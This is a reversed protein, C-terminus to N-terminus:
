KVDAVRSCLLAFIFILNHTCSWVHSMKIKRSTDIFNIILNFISIENSRSILIEFILRCIKLEIENATCVCMRFAREPHPANPSVSNASDSDNWGRKADLSRRLYISLSLALLTEGLAGIVDQWARQCCQARAANRRREADWDTDLRRTSRTSASGIGYHPDTAHARTQIAPAYRSRSALCLLLAVYSSRTASATPTTAASSGARFPSAPSFRLSLSNSCYFGRGGRIRVGRPPGVRDALTKTALFRSGIPATSREEGRSVPARVGFRSSSRGRLAGPRSFRRTLPPAERWRLPLFFFIRRGVQRGNNPWRRGPSLTLTAGPERPRAFKESPENHLKKIWRGADRHHPARHPSGIVYPARSRRIFVRARFRANRGDTPRGSTPRVVGCGRAAGWQIRGETREDLFEAAPYFPNEMRRNGYARQRTPRRPSSADLPAREIARYYM